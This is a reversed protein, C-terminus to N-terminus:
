AAEQLLPRREAETSGGWVGYAIDNEIAYALCEDRVPCGRCVAVAADWWRVNGDPPAFFTEPDTQSCVGHRMWSTGVAMDELDSLGTTTTM